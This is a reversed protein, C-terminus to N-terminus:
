SLYSIGRCRDIFFSEAKELAAEMVVVDDEMDVVVIQGLVGHLYAAVTGALTQSIRIVSSCPFSIQM